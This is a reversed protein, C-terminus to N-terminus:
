TSRTISAWGGCRFEIPSLRFSSTGMTTSASSGAILLHDVNPTLLLGNEGDLREENTADRWPKCHSARLHESKNVGTVRCAVERQMVRQKFLGQGRRALVISERTTEAILTDSRISALEHEEWQILGIAPFSEARDEIRFRKMVDHAERGILDALAGALSEPLLTLYVSQLGSGSSSLPAYKSPIYPALMAMHESPRITGALEVFRVDVRWGIVEWYAGVAGFELPKPSEYAHSEVIGIAKICADAFSFVVDGPSVERMFDYFANRAGNRKRKPSWLYGGPVEHRYTQKQNVWWYRM